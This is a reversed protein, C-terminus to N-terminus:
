EGAMVVHQEHFDAPKGDAYEWVTVKLDRVGWERAIEDTPYLVDLRLGKILGGRDLVPVVQGGAYGPVAVLSGFPLVDTDAAVMNMGNTWVSYGSATIGDASEGCSIEDPSYATVTMHITRAPRIPRGNFTPTSPRRADAVMAAMAGRLKALFQIVPIHAPVVTADPAGHRKAGAVPGKIESVSASPAKPMEIAVPTAVMLHLGRGNQRVSRPVLISLMVTGAVAVAVALM